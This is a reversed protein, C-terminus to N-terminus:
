ALPLKHKPPPRTPEDWFKLAEKAQLKVELPANFLELLTYKVCREGNKRACDLKEDMLDAGCKWCGRDHSM